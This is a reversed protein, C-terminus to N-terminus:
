DEDDILFKEMKCETFLNIVNEWFSKGFDYKINGYEKVVRNKNDLSCLQINEHVLLQNNGSQIGHMTVYTSVALNNKEDDKVLLILNGSKDDQMGDGLIKWVYKNGSKKNVEMWAENYKDIESSSDEINILDYIKKSKGDYIIDSNECIYDYLSKM